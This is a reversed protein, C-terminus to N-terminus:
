LIEGIAKNLLGKPVDPLRCAFRVKEPRKFEFFSQDAIEFWDCSGCVNAIYEQESQGPTPILIAPIKMSMLEMVSSYGSRCVVYSCEEYLKRLIHTNAVNYTIMHDPFRSKAPEETGRVMVINEDIAYTKQIIIEELITRQPEPGSLIVLIYKKITGAALAGFRNLLGLYIPKLKLDDSKTLEPFLSDKMDPVLCSDYMNIIYRHVLAPLKWQHLSEPKLIRLQHTLYHSPVKNHRCSFRNDSIIADVKNKNIFNHIRHKDSLYVSLFHPLQMMLKQVQKHAGSYKPDYPKLELFNIGHIENSLFNDYLNKSTAVTVKHGSNLLLKIVPVSRSAHGLGWDLICFVIHKAPEM